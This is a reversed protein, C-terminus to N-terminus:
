AAEYIVMFEYRSSAIPAAPAAAGVRTETGSPWTTVYRFQAGAGSATVAATSFGASVSGTLGSLRIVGVVVWTSPGSTKATVPLSFTYDGSGAAVGSTGFTVNGRAIVTKGIQVYEGSSSSGTGLTPDSTATITPTWSGSWAGVGLNTATIVKLTGAPGDSTDSVDLAMLLDGGALSTLTGATSIEQGPNANADVYAKTATDVSNSPAVGLQRRM